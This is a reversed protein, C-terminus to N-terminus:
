RGEGKAPAPPPAPSRDPRKLLFPLWGSYQYAFSPDTAFRANHYRFLEAALARMVAPERSVLNHEEGPDDVVNYLERAETPSSMILSYQGARIALPWWLLGHSFVPRPPQPQALSRGDLGNPVPLGLLDLVTPMIDTHTVLPDVKVRGAGGPEALSPHLFALPVHIDDEWVHMSHGMDVARPPRGVGQGHDGVFVILTDDLLRRRDLEDYFAGFLKDAREISGLYRSQPDGARQEASMEQWMYPKHTEANWVVTFWPEKGQRTDLWELARGFTVSDEVGPPGEVEPSTPLIRGRKLLDDADEFVTFPALDFIRVTGWMRSFSSYFVASEYGAKGLERHIVTKYPPFQVRSDYDYFAFAVAKAPPSQATMLAWTSQVTLPCEAYANTFDVSGRSLARDLNPTAAQGRPSFSRLYPSGVSEWVWLLVNMRRKPFRALARAASTDRPGLLREFEQREEATPAAAVTRELGTEMLMGLPTLRRLLSERQDAPPRLVPLFGLMGLLLPAYARPRWKGDVLLGSKLTGAILPSLVVALATLLTGTTLVGARDSFGMMFIYRSLAPTMRLLESSLPAGWSAFFEVGIFAVAMGALTACGMTFWILNRLRSPAPPLGRSALALGFLAALSAADWNSTAVFAALRAGLPEGGYAAGVALWKAAATTVALMACHSWACLPLDLSQAELKGTFASLAARIARLGSGM